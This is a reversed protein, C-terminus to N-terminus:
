WLAYQQFFISFTPSNFQIIQIMTETKKIFEFMDLTSESSFSSKKEKAFCYSAGM